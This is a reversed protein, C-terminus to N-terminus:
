LELGPMISNTVNSVQYQTPQMRGNFSMGLQVGNGYNMQKVAGWARYSISSVFSTVNQTVWSWNPWNGSMYGTTFGSGGVSSLRGTSDHNYTVQQSWLPMSVSSLEGGLNYGYDLEYSRNLQTFYRTESTMRSLQDYGYSVSGMGDTM